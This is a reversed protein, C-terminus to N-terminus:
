CGNDTYGVTELQCELSSPERGLWSESELTVSNVGGESRGALPLLFLRSEFRYRVGQLWSLDRVGDQFEGPPAISMGSVQGGGVGRAIFPLRDVGAAQPGGKLMRVIVATARDEQEVPSEGAALYARAAMFTAYQVYSGWAFVLTLQLFFLVFAMLLVMTLAFEVTSQGKESKTLKGNKVMM